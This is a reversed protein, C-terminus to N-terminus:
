QKSSWQIPKQFRLFYSLNSKQKSAFAYFQFTLSAQGWGMGNWWRLVSSPAVPLGYAADDRLTIGSSGGGEAGPPRPCGGVRRPCWCWVPARGCGWLERMQGRRRGIRLHRRRRRCLPLSPRTCRRCFPVFPALVLAPV